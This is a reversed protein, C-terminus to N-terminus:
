PISLKETGYLRVKLRACPNELSEVQPPEAHLRNGEAELVEPLSPLSAELAGRGAEADWLGRPQWFQSIRGFEVGCHPFM